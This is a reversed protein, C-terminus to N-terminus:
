NNARQSARWNRNFGFLLRNNQKNSVRKKKGILEKFQDNLFRPIFTFFCILFGFAFFSNRWVVSPPPDLRNSM